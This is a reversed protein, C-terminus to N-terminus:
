SEPGHVETNAGTSRGARKEKHVTHIWHAYVKRTPNLPETSTPDMAVLHFGYNAYFLTM